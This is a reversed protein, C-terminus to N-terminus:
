LNEGAERKMEKKITEKLRYVEIKTDMLTFLHTSTVFFNHMKQNGIQYIPFSFLYKNKEIDYVDIISAQQWLKENEYRGPVKSHVFLLNNYIATHANVLLPPAAMKRERKDKLYAVKIQAHVITDITNGRYSLTGKKDAAIFQNRYYYVYVMRNLSTSYQLMGDTDFIGDIQKQLLKSAYNTKPLIGSNFVGLVHAGNKSNNNRFAITTSDMPESLTFSPCNKLEQNVKWNNITGRFVCPVTGDMLYFYPPRVLIKVMRFPLETRDFAIKVKQQHRSTTDISLIHLPDTYNGLYISGKDYGAFYYSNFKLDVTHTLAVPHQPYRRIFPNENHMIEESSLFLIVVVGISFFLSFAITAFYALPRMKGIWSYEKQKELLLGLIALVVFLINFIMHETWGMKELIGGCSCPVFSSYHLIIYIYTTFMMMLSCAAFLAIVRWKPFLFLLAIILEIIPVLWSVWDAFASFLPSQGLQVKFNEFDLLKSVAAYVFLLIYLLCVTEIIITKIRQSSKM